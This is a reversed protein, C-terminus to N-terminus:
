GFLRKGKSKEDCCLVLAHEPPSLNLGVVGELKEALKPDRLVKFTKILHPKMGHAQWIGRATTDGVKAAKDLKCTSWHTADDPQTQTILRM